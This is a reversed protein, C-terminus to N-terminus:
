GQGHRPCHPNDGIYQFCACLKPTTTATQYYLDGVKYVPGEINKSALAALQTEVSQGRPAHYIVQLPAPHIRALETQSHYPTVTFM